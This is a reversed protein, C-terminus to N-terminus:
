PAPRWRQTQCLFVICGQVKLSGDGERKVISKYTKGNRPDYIRGRWDGDGAVFGTLIPLGLIPRDRLAPDPNSRDTAPANPAARVVRAIRGCTTAGCPGIAVVAAGDGTLWRGAIPAPGAALAVTPLLAFAAALALRRVNMVRSYCARGAVSAPM